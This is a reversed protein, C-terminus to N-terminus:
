QNSDLCKLVADGFRAFDDLHKVSVAHVIEWDLNMYDHVAVNRLGVSRALQEALIKDLIGEQGLYLFSEAM